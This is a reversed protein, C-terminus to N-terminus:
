SLSKSDKDVGSKHYNYCTDISPGLTLQCERLSWELQLSCFSNELNILMPLQAKWTNCPARCVSSISVSQSILLTSFIIFWPSININPFTTTINKRQKKALSSQNLTFGNSRLSNLYPFINELNHLVPKWTLFYVDVYYCFM